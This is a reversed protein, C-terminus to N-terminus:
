KYAFAKEKEMSGNRIHHAEDVIVLDFHPEPDLESLGFSRLKKGEEGNYAKSDLISYPIIVKNYRIPWEGDRDTDSIIQRLTPGDIPIFEEDFRKMELEWKREAVLPRPCIVVVRELESRAELEKIILGAEITKGVGVSDAILIRPEDAHIMKLAPRFQYPVFDIRASNLSYLNQSSPNNIQYATLFSRVDNIGVWNYETTEQVLAIQGSFFRRLSNNVFVEYQTITGLQKMSVVYGKIEPTAVLYVQSNVCIEGHSSAKQYDTNEIVAPKGEHLVVPVSDPQEIFAIFKDIERCVSPNGGVQGIFTSITNLDHLITDKGPLEASCHAWNNRVSMMERVVEREKTPLYVVTRMDYWSKNTIRLLAALDFDSLKTYSRSAAMERQTYSLSSMVCEDWWDDTVKPLISNLWNVLSVTAEHLFSNVSSIIKQAEM